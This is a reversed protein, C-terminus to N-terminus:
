RRFAYCTVGWSQDNVQGGMWAEFNVNKFGSIECFLDIEPLFFYRVPHKETIVERTGSLIDEVIVEFNVDVRNENVKLEPECLRIVSTKEDSFRKIRVEPKQVLVAPGYWFDFVFLGGPALHIAATEFMSIVDQNSVQYGLVHFLSVVADFRKGARFTRVDGHSFELQTKITPTLHDRKIEAQKLMSHSSDIGHINFGQKALPIAHAGTGCGLELITIIQQGHKRILDGVYDSESQYDKDQYLLDYYRSYANFVSM